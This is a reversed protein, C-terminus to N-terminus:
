QVSHRGARRWVSVRFALERITVSETYVASFGVLDPLQYDSSLTLLVFHGAEPIRASLESLSLRSHWNPHFDFHYRDTPSYVNLREGLYNVLAFLGHENRIGHISIDVSSSNKLDAVANECLQLLDTFIRPEFFEASDATRNKADRLLVYELRRVNGAVQSIQAALTSVTDSTASLEVSSQANHLALEQREVHSDLRQAMTQYQQLQRSLSEILSNQREIENILSQFLEYEAGWLKGLNRVRVLTRQVYSIGPIRTLRKTVGGFDQALRWSNWKSFSHLLTDMSGGGTIAVSEQQPKSLSRTINRDIVKTYSQAMQNVSLNHEFYARADHGARERIIPNKALEILHSALSTGQRDEPLVKRCFTDPLFRWEPLDTVITPKGAALARVLIASMQMMSPYRLNVIVDCVLLYANFLDQTAYGVFRVRTQISLEDILQRLKLQYNSDTEEGVIVFVCNPVQAVLKAFAHLVVDIQKIEAVIGFAGVVFTDDAIGFKARLEHFTESPGHTLQDRVGELIVQVEVPGYRREIEEKADPLHVILAASSECIRRLMPYRRFFRVYDDASRNAQKLWHKAEALAAPGDSYALEDLFQAVDGQTMALHYFLNSMALDHLVVLGPVRLAQEYIYTHFTSNGLQYVNLAFPFELARREFDKYSFVEYTQDHRPTAVYKADIFVDIDFWEELQELLELSYDAIGSKIPPLPTWFAIRKRPRGRPIITAAAEKYAAMTEMGLQDANFVPSRAQAAIELRTRQEDNTLVSEIAMALASPDEPDVLLAASGSVEALSAATTTVVATGCCMAEVVPLGFGEYRSPHLYVTAANYLAVLEMDSVYGTIVVHEDIGYSRTRALLEAQIEKSTDFTLVLPFASRMQRSLLSYAKLLGDLNKSHHFGPVALIFSNPILQPLRHRLLALQDITEAPSLPCFIPDPIPYAVRIRDADFDLYHIAEKKVANSIAILFDAKRLTEFAIMYISRTLPDILYEHPYIYPILDYHTVLLPCVEFDTLVLDAMLFHATQHFLDLNDGWLLAQFTHSVESINTPTLAIREIVSRITVSRLSGLSQVFSDLNVDQHCYLVYEHQPNQRITEAIQAQTYRGMGRKLTEEYGWVRCDIGIRLPRNTPSSVSGTFM